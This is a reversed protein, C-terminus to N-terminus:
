FGPSKLVPKKSFVYRMSINGSYLNPSNAYSNIQFYTDHSLQKRKSEGIINTRSNTVQLKFRNTQYGLMLGTSNIGWIIKQHRFMLNIDLVEITNIHVRQLTTQNVYSYRDYYVLLQPTFSFKSEPTRQFTYGAQLTYKMQSLFHTITTDRYGLTWVTLVQASVGIYAKSSNILFGTKTILNKNKWHSITDHRLILFPYEFKYNSAEYSFDAFPAFTYKGRFSFKPSIALGTSTNKYHTYQSGGGEQGITVAVGSGIKKFFRDISIFSGRGPWNQGVYYGTEGFNFYSFSAIRLSGAEGAFGGNYKTPLAGIPVQQAGAKKSFLLAVVCWAIVMRTIM